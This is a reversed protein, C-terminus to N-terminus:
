AGGKLIECSLLSLSEMMQLVLWFNRSAGSHIVHYVLHLIPVVYLFLKSAVETLFIDFGTM